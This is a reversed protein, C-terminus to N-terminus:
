SERAELQHIPWSKSLTFSLVTQITALKVVPSFTDDCDVGIQQSRGNAVLRAKHIEFDGNSKHKHRFVWMSRVVNVGLSSPVLEWTGNKILANFEDTMALKRNPDNTAALPSKPLPSIKTTNM